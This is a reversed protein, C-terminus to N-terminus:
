RDIRKRYRVTFELGLLVDVGEPGPERIVCDFHMCSKAASKEGSVYQLKILYPSGYQELYEESFLTEAHILLLDSLHDNLVELRSSTDRLDFPETILSRSSMADKGKLKLSSFHTLPSCGRPPFRLLRGALSLTLPITTRAVTKLTHWRQVGRATDGPVTRILHVYQKSM